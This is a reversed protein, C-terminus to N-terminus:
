VQHSHRSKAFPRMVHFPAPLCTKNECSFEAQNVPPLSRPSDYRMKVTQLTNLIILVQNILLLSYHM